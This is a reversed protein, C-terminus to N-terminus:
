TPRLVLAIVSFGLGVRWVLPYGREFLAGRASLGRLRFVVTGALNIGVLQLLLQFGCSQVLDWRALFAAMGLCAAPPALNAAVLLGIAAGSVLSSRRSQVLNWAGAAGGVLPLLVSVASIKGVAVMQASAYQLGLLKSLLYASVMCVALGVAYRLLNRGLLQSDGRATALAANMATGAFPAILMAGILLPINDTYLGVWAIVGAAAAYGLFGKWSGTAQVGQLFVEVPSLMEVDENQGSVEELPTRMTM